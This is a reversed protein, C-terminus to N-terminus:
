KDSSTPISEIKKALRNVMMDLEDLDASFSIHPIRIKSGDKDTTERHGQMSFGIKEDKTLNYWISNELKMMPIEIIGFKVKLEEIIMNGPVGPRENILKIVEEIVLKDRETIDVYDFLPEIEKGDVNSKIKNSM